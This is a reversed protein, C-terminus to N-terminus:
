QALSSFIVGRGSGPKGAQVLEGSKRTVLLKVWTQNFKRVRSAYSNERDKRKQVNAHHIM